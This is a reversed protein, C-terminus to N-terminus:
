SIFTISTFMFSVLKNRQNKSLFEKDDAESSQNLQIHGKLNNCSKENM